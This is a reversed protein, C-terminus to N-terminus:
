RGGTAGRRGRLAAALSAVAASFLISAGAVARSRSDQQLLAAAERATAYPIYWTTTPAGVVVAGPWQREVLRRTRLTHFSNTVVAPHTLGREELLPRSFALNEQTSTSKDEKLINAAPVGKRQLYRSMAEAEAIVEDPGQGGSVVIQLHPREQWFAVARDLRQALARSPREGVLGAGLVVVSDVSTPLPESATPATIGILALYCGLAGACAGYLGAKAREGRRVSEGLGKAVFVGGAVSGAAIGVSITGQILAAVKAKHM